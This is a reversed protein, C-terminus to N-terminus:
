KGQRRKGDDAVRADWILVNGERGGAAVRTGDPSVALCTVPGPPGAFTQIIARKSVDLGCVRGDKLGLWVMKGGRAYALMPGEYASKAVRDKAPLPVAAMFEGGPLSQFVLEPPRDVGRERRAPLATIYSKGNLAFATTFLRHGQGAQEVKALLEGKDVDWVHLFRIEDRVALRGPGVFGLGGWPYAGPIELSRIAKRTALDWVRVRGNAGSAGTAGALIKGDPSLALHVLSELRGEGGLQGIERGSATDWFRVPGNSDVASSFLTKGDSTLLLCRIGRPHADLRRLERGARIDWLRVTGDEGGTWVQTGDPTFCAATVKTLHGEDPRSLPKGTDADWVRVVGNACVAAVQKGDSAYELARIEMGRCNTVHLQKGGKVDWFGLTGRDHKLCALRSGDPSLALNGSPGSPLTFRAVETLDPLEWVIAIQKLDFFAVAALYKGNASAALGSLTRGFPVKKEQGAALDLRKVERGSPIDFLRILGSDEGVAVVKQAIALVERQGPLATKGRNPKLRRVLPRITRDESVRCFGLDGGVEVAVLLNSGPVFHVSRYKTYRVVPSLSEPIGELNSPYLFVEGGHVAVITKGDASITVSPHRADPSAGKIKGGRIKKKQGEPYDASHLVKGTAVDFVRLKGGADVVMRSGDPFVALSRGYAGPSFRITGLRALAGPPLPDQHRDMQLRPQNQNQSESALLIPFASVAMSSVLVIWSAPRLWVLAM